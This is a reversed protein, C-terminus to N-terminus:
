MGAAAPKRDPSFVPLRPSWDGGDLDRVSVGSQEMRSKIAERCDEDRYM